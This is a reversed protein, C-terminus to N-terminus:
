RDQRYGQHTTNQKTNAEQGRKDSDAPKGTKVDSGTSSRKPTRSEDHGRNAPPVPPLKSM